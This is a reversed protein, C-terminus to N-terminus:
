RDDEWDDPVPLGRAKRARYYENSTRILDNWWFHLWMSGSGVTWGICFGIVLYEETGM